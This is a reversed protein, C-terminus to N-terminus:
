EARQIAAGLSALKETLQYYGRDIHHVGNVETKGIAALGALVLAAGARLDGARVPAGYLRERGAVV